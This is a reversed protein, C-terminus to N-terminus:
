PGVSHNYTFFPAAHHPAALPRSAVSHHTFSDGQLILQLLMDEISRKYIYFTFINVETIFTSDREREREALSNFFM